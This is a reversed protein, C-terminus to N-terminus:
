KDKTDYEKLDEEMDEIISEFYELQPYYTYPKGMLDNEKNGKLELKLAEKIGTLRRLYQKIIIKTEIM